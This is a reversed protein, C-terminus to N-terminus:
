RQRGRAVTSVTTDLMKISRLLRSLTAASPRAKMRIINSVHQRSLGAVRALASIGYTGAVRCVEDLGEARVAPETGYDTQAEPYLGLYAQEEWRTAEKEIHQVITTEIHRRETAGCDM